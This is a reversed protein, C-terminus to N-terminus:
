IINETVSKTKETFIDLVYNDYNRETQTEDVDIAAASVQDGNFMFSGNRLVMSLLLQEALQTIDM